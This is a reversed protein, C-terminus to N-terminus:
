APGARHGGGNRACAKTFGPINTAEYCTLPQGKANPNRFVQPSILGKACALEINVRTATGNWRAARSIARASLWGLPPPGIEQTPIQTPRGPPRPRQAKPRVRKRVHELADAMEYRRPTNAVRSDALRPPWVRGQYTKLAQVVEALSYNAGVVELQLTMWIQYANDFGTPVRYQDAARRAIEHLFFVNYRMQGHSDAVRCQQVEADNFLDRVQQVTLSLANAVLQITFPYDSLPIKPARSM